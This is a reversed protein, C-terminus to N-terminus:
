PRLAELLARHERVFAKEPANPHKLYADHAKLVPELIIPDAGKELATRANRGLAALESATYPPEDM